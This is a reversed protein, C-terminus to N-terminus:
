VMDCVVEEMDRLCSTTGDWHIEVWGHYATFKAPPLLVLLGKGDINRFICIRMGVSVVCPRDCTLGHLKESSLCPRCPVGDAVM